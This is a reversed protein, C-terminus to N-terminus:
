TTHPHGHAAWADCSALVSPLVSHRCRQLVARRSPHSCTSGRLSSGHCAADVLHDLDDAGAVRRPLLGGLGGDLLGRAVELVQPDRLDHLQVHVDHVVLDGGVTRPHADGELVVLVRSVAPPPTLRGRERRRGVSLGGRRRSDARGHARVILLVVLLVPVILDPLVSGANLSGNNGAGTMEQIHVGAAGVAFTAWGLQEAVRDAAFLHGMAGFLGGIGVGVVLAYLLYVDLVRRSSRPQKSVFLHVTAVLLAVAIVIVTTM